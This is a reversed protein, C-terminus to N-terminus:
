VGRECVRYSDTLDCLQCPVLISAGSVAKLRQADETDMSPGFWLVHANDADSNMINMETLPISLGHGDLFEMIRPRLTSLLALANELTKGSSAPTDELAMVGLTVHLRRPAIIIGSDIGPLAPKCGVLGDTFSKVLGQLRM